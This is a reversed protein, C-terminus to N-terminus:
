GCAEEKFIMVGNGTTKFYIFNEIQKNYEYLSNLFQVMTKTYLGNEGKYLPYNVIEGSKTLVLQARVQGNQIALEHTMNFSVRMISATHNLYQNVYSYPIVFRSSTFYPSENRFTKTYLITNSHRTFFNLPKIRFLEGAEAYIYDYYVVIEKGIYPLLISPMRTKVGHISKHLIFDKRICKKSISAVICYVGDIDIKPAYHIKKVSYKEILSLSEPNEIYLFNKQIIQNNLM